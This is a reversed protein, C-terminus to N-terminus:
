SANQKIEFRPWLSGQETVALDTTGLLWIEDVVRTGVADAVSEVLKWLRPAEDRSLKRKVEPPDVRVFSARLGSTATIVGGVAGFLVLGIIPLSIVSLSLAGYVLTM